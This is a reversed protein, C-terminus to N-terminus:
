LFSLILQVIDDNPIARELLMPAESMNEYITLKSDISVFLSNLGEITYFGLTGFIGKSYYTPISGLMDYINVRWSRAQILALRNPVNFKILLCYTRLSLEHVGGNWWDRMAECSVLEEIGRCFEVNTLNTCGRFVNDDIEKVAPPIVIRQLSTCNNFAESQIEELGDGLTVTTLGTCLSFANHKIVKVANPIVIERLSTCYGFAHSGIEELGDGLTVNKLGTCDSFAEEQITRVANPIVIRRLM